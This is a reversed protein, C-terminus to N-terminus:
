TELRQKWPSIDALWCIFQLVTIAEGRSQCLQKSMFIQLKSVELCSSSRVHETLLSQKPPFFGRFYLFCFMMNKGQFLLKIFDILWCFLTWVPRGLDRASMQPSYAWINKMKRRGFLFLGKENDDQYNRVRFSTCFRNSDGSFCLEGRVWLGSYLCHHLLGGSIHKWESGFLSWKPFCWASVPM